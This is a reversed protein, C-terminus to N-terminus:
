QADAQRARFENQVDPNPIPIHRVGPRYHKAWAGDGWHTLDVLQGPTMPALFQVVERITELEAGGDPVKVGYFVDRVPEAGFMKAQHYLSPIVPGYDWAEFTEPLLPQGHRGLHVMHAVYLIKQLELNSIQWDRMECAAKAAASTSITM